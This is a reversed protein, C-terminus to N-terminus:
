GKDDVIEDTAEADIPKGDGMGEIFKVDREPFMETTEGYGGIFGQGTKEKPEFTQVAKGLTKLADLRTREEFEEGEHFDKLGGLIYEQTIGLKGAAEAVEKKMESMIREQKVLLLARKLIKTGTGTNAKFADLYADELNLRRHLINFIFVREAKTLTKRSVIRARQSKSSAGGFRFRHPHKSTDTDM